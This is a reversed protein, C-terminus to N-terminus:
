SITFAISVTSLELTSLIWLVGNLIKQDVVTDSIIILDTLTEKHFALVRMMDHTLMDPRPADEDEYNENDDSIELSRMANLNQLVHDTFSLPGSCTYPSCDVSLSNLHPLAGLISLTEESSSRSYGTWGLHRLNRLRTLFNLDLTSADLTLSDLSPCSSAMTLLFTKEQEIRKQIPQKDGGYPDYSSSSPNM